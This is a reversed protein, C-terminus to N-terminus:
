VVSGKEIRTSEWKTQITKQHCSHNSNLMEGPIQIKLFANQNLLVIKEYANMNKRALEFYVRVPVVSYVPFIYKTSQLRSVIPM